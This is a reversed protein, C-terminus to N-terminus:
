LHRDTWLPIDAGNCEPICGEPSSAFVGRPASVGLVLCVCGLLLCGGSASVVRPGSVGGPSTVGQSWVGRSWVGRSWVGVQSCVGRSGSVGGRSWVCGWDGRLLCGGSCVDGPVLCGRGGCHMSPSVSLLRATRMRSSHTSKM